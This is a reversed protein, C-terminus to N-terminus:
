WGGAFWGQTAQGSLYHGQIWFECLRLSASLAVGRCLWFGASTLLCMVESQTQRWKEYSWSSDSLYLLASSAPFVWIWCLSGQQIESIHPKGVAIRIMLCSHSGQLFGVKSQCTPLGMHLRCVLLLMFLQPLGPSRWYFVTGSGLHLWSFKNSKMLNLKVVSFSSGVSIYRALAAAIHCIYRM